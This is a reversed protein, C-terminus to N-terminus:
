ATGALSDRLLEAVHRAALPRGARAALGRLHLLCSLDPSVVVDPAGGVLDETRLVGLTRSLHPHTVSFVGGFGCCAESEAVPVLTVGDISGVLREVAQWTGGGRAHCPRHVAVRARLRGPWAGGTRQAVFECLEHVRAALAAAAAREASGEDFLAPAHRLFAVCSAAPAVVPVDEGFTALAHRVVARAAALDGATYAPQGCCTQDAPFAVECGAHELVEVAARAVGDEFADCLCTLLLAVRTPQAM